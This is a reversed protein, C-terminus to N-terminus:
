RYAHTLSTLGLHHNFSILFTFNLNSCAVFVLFPLVIEKVEAISLPPHDADRGSRKIGGLNGQVGQMPPQTLEM